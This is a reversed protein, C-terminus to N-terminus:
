IEGINNIIIPMSEGKEWVYTKCYLRKNQINRQRVSTWCLNGCQVLLEVGKRKRSGSKVVWPAWYFFRKPIGMRSTPVHVWFVPLFKSITFFKAWAVFYLLSSLEMSLPFFILNSFNEFKLLDIKSFPAIFLLFANEFFTKQKLVKLHLEIDEEGRQTQNSTGSPIGSLDEKMWLCQNQFSCFLLHFPSLSFSNSNSVLVLYKGEEKRGEEKLVEKCYTIDFVVEM